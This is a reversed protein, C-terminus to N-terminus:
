RFDRRARQDDVAIAIGQIRHLHAHRDIARNWIGREPDHRVGAVAVDEAIGLRCEDCRCHAKQTLPTLFEDSRSPRAGTKVTKGSPTTNARHTGTRMPKMKHTSPEPHENAKTPPGWVCPKSSRASHVSNSTAGARSATTPTKVVSPSNTAISPPVFLQGPSPVSGENNSSVPALQRNPRPKARPAIAGNAM